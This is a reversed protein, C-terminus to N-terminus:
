DGSLAKGPPEATFFRDAVCSAWTGDWPGSSGRSFSIAVWELIRAQCDGPARHAVTWPTACLRVRSLSQVADAIGAEPGKSNIKFAMGKMLLGTLTLHSSPAAVASHPMRGSNILQFRLGRAVPNPSLPHLPNHHRPGRPPILAKTFVCSGGLVWAEAVSEHGSPRLCSPLFATGPHARSQPQPGPGGLTHPSGPRGATGGRHTGGATRGMSVTVVSLMGVACLVLCSGGSPPLRATLGPEAAGRSSCPPSQLALLRGPTRAGRNRPPATTCAPAWGDVGARVAWLATQTQAGLAPWSPAEPPKM